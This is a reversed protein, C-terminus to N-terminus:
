TARADEKIVEVMSTEDLALDMVEGDAKQVRLRDLWLRGSKGHAFWSGTADRSISVVRGRVETRWAEDRTAITQVVRVLQSPGVEPIAM